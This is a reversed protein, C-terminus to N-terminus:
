MRSKGAHGRRVSLILERVKDKTFGGKSTKTGM